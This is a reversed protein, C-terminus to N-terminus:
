RKRKGLQGEDRAIKCLVALPHDFAAVDKEGRGVRDQNDELIGRLRRLVYDPNRRCLEEWQERIWETRLAGHSDISEIWRRAGALRM